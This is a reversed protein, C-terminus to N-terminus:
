SQHEVQQYALRKFGVCQTGVEDVKAEAFDCGASLGIGDSSQAHLEGVLLHPEIGFEEILQRARELGEGM